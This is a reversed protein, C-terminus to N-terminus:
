NLRSGLPHWGNPALDRESLCKRGVLHYGLFGPVQVEADVVREEMGYDVYIFSHTFGGLFQVPRGDFGAAPYYLSHQLAEDLPFDSAGLEAPNLRALWMPLPRRQDHKLSMTTTESPDLIGVANSRNIAYGCSIDPRLIFPRGHTRGIHNPRNLYKSVM